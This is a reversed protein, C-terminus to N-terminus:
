SPRGAQPADREITNNPHTGRVLAGLIAGLIAGTPMVSLTVGAVSSAELLSATQFVSLIEWVMLAAIGGILLGAVSFVARKKHRNPLHRVFQGLLLWFIAAALFTPIVTAVWLRLEFLSSFWFIPAIAAASFFPIPDPTITNLTAATVLGLVFPGALM